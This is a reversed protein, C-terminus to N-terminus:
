AEPSPTEAKAPEGPLPFYVKFLSGEGPETEVEIKAGIIDVCKKVLALGLGNGEHRRAKESRYFREYIHRVEKKDMGPGEDKVGFYIDDSGKSLTVTVKGGQPSFKVANSLINTIITNTLNERGLYPIEELEIEFDLGKLSWKGELALIALRIQEDLSYEVLEPTESENELRSLKLIDSTLSSVSRTNLIIRNLYEERQGQSLNKSQLLTAYGEIAALPTKMEHSMAAAFDNNLIQKESLEEVMSNFDINMERVSGFLSDENLKVTFDGESVKRVAIRVDEIPRMIKRMILWTVAITIAVIIAILFWLSGTGLDVDRPLIGYHILLMSALGLLVFASLVVLSVVLAIYAPLLSNKRLPKRYSSKRKKM